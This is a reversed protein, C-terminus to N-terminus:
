ITSNLRYSRRVNSVVTPLSSSDLRRRRMGRWYLMSQDGDPTMVVIRLEPYESLLHSCIGPAPNVQPAGLILVDADKAALMVEIKGEVREMLLMDQQSQILVAVRDAVAQSLNTILVRICPSLGEPNDPETM